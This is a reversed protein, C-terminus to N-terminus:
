NIVLGELNAKEEREQDKENKHGESIIRPNGRQLKRGKKRWIGLM